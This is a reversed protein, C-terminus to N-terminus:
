AKPVSALAAKLIAQAKTALTAKPTFDNGGVTLWVKVVLNGSRAHVLYESNKSGSQSEKAFGEAQDGIGKVEGDFTMVTVNRTARFLKEADQPSTLTSAEVLLTAKRGDPGRLEFLCAAGPASTPAKSDSREVTLSLDTLQGVDAKACVDLGTADYTPGTAGPATGSPLSTPVSPVPVPSGGTPATLPEV